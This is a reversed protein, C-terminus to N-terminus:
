LNCLMQKTSILCFFVSHIGIDELLVDFILRFTIKFFRFIPKILRRNVFQSGIDTARSELCHSKNQNYDAATEM